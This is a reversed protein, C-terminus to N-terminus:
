GGCLEELEAVQKPVGATLNRHGDETVLIDDEIRIGIGRFDAPASAADRSIYLGPEITIVMGPQLSRPKGEDDGYTGVDHVDMGLWHSTRHMYYHRFSGDAVRERLEGELLGMEIMGATLIAVVREHIQDITVGPKTMRIAEEQSQLVLEYCRRQAPSFRGGCPFTRTVDATCFDVECGADILVLDGTKLPSTNERYHLITANDGAGVISGYGPGVGGRKRFTYDILAELEYEFVGPKAGRMAAVHAEGSIAAARSLLEIEEPSKFLRLEHLTYHPDVVRKPPRGSRREWQRLQGLQSTLQADFTVDTGFGYHLETKNGLLAGLRSPLEAIPYAVDAGFDRVAGEVGARRGDWVEREPDRPRVFMVVREKEAGPVLLLCSEPEAFGTLYLLDSSQRFKYDSDGNRIAERSSHFIAVGKPDMLKMFRDRRTAFISSSM